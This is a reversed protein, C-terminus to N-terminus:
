DAGDVPGCIPTTQGPSAVSLRTCETARLFGRVFGCIRSCESSDAVCLELSTRPLASVSCYKARRYRSLVASAQNLSTAVRGQEGKEKGKERREYMM